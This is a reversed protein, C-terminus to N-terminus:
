ALLGVASKVTFVVGIALVIAAMVRANNRGLWARMAALRADAKDRGVFYVVLVAILSATSLISYFLVATVAETRSGNTSAIRLGADVVFFVNIMFTGFAFGVIPGMHDLKKLWGPEAAPEPTALSRRYSRLGFALLLVGLALEVVLVGTSTSDQTSESAGGLGAAVVAAIFTVACFWGLTFAAAVRAGGRSGLMVVVGVIAWPTLATLIGVILLYLYLHDNVLQTLRSAPAAPCWGRAPEVITSV